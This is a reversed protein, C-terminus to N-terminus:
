SGADNECWGGEICMAADRSAYFLVSLTGDNTVKVRDDPDYSTTYEGLTGSDVTEDTSGDWEDATDDFIVDESHKHDEWGGKPNQSTDYASTGERYVSIFPWNNGSSNVRTFSAGEWYKENVGTTTNRYYGSLGCNKAQFNSILLPARADVIDDDAVTVQENKGLATAINEIYSGTCDAAIINHSGFDEDGSTQLGTFDLAQFVNTFHTATIRIDQM